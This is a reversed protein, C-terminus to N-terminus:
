KWIPLDILRPRNSAFYRLPHTQAAAFGMMAAASRSRRNESRSTCAARRCAETFQQTFIKRIAETPFPCQVDLRAFWYDGTDDSPRGGGPCLSARGGPLFRMNSRRITRASFSLRCRAGKMPTPQGPLTAQYPGRSADGANERQRSRGTPWRRLFHISHHSHLHSSASDM